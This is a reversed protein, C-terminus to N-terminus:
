PTDVISEPTMASHGLAIAMLPDTVVFSGFFAISAHVAMSVPGTILKHDIRIFVIDSLM